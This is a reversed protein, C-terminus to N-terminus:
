INNNRLYILIDKMTLCDIENYKKIEEFIDNDINNNLYYKWGLHMADMGHMCKSKQNWITNILGLAKMQKAIKKLGFGSVNGHVLIPENRFITLLDCWNLEKLSLYEERAKNYETKEAHSWHYINGLCNYKQNLSTIFEQMESLIRLEEQPSISNATFSNFKWNRDGPELYGVGIMFIFQRKKNKLYMYGITEFDVYFDLKNKAKWDFLNSQIKLPHIPHSDDYSKQNFKLINGIIKRKKNGTIGLTDITCDKDLYSTIGHSTAINRNITSVMHVNTIENYKKALENKIKNYESDSEIKMNPRMLNESPPDYKLSKDTRIRKLFSLCDNLSFNYNYDRNTYDIRSLRNFPDLSESRLKSRTSHWGNSLIYASDPEYGQMWGLGRNYILLQMKYPKSTKTNLIMQKDSSLELTSSKIDVIRYHYSTGLKSASLSQSEDDIVSESVLKNLYDSRVILDPCGYTKNLPNQIVPQYLIPIGKKMMELTKKYHLKSSAQFSEGIKLINNGFKQVLKNYIEDEFENGKNLVYATFTEPFPDSLSNLKKEDWTDLRKRKKQKPVSNLDTIKHHKLYAILHDNRAIDWTSSAKIWTERDVKFEDLNSKSLNYLKIFEFFGKKTNKWDRNIILKKDLSLYCYRNTINNFGTHHINSSLISNTLEKKTDFERLNFFFLNCKDLNLFSLQYQIYTKYENLMISSLKENFPIVISNVLKGCYTFGHPSIKINPNRNYSICKGQPLSTFKNQKKLINLINPLYQITTENFPSKLNKLSLFKDFTLISKNIISESNNILRLVRKKRLNNM